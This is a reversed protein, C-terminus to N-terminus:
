NWQLNSLEINYNTFNDFDLKKLVDSYILKEDKMIEIFKKISLRIIEHYNEINNIVYTIKKKNEKEIINGRVIISRVTYLKNLKAYLEKRENIDNKILKSIRLCFRYQLSDKSESEGLLIEWSLVIDLLKDIDNIRNCSSSFRELCMQAKSESNFAYKFFDVFNEFESELFEQNAQKNYKPIHYSLELIQPLIFSNKIDTITYSIENGKFLRIIGM